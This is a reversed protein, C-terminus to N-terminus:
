PKVWRKATGEFWIRDISGWNTSVPQIVVGKKAPWGTMLDPRWATGYSAGGFNVYPLADFFVTQAKRALETRMARDQTAVVQAVLKDYEANSWKGYNVTEGTVFSSLFEIISSGTITNLTDIVIDFDGKDRRSFFLAQDLPSVKMEINLHKKWMDAAYLATNVRFQEDTRVICELSFGNPYGAEKLLRKAEAVRKDMPGETGMARAVEQKTFAEKVYFPVLGAGEVYNLELGGVGAIILEQYDLTMALAKRVRIDNWPGKRQFSFYAGRSSGSPELAIVAEPAYKKVKLVQTRDNDLYYRLTGCTDLNGGIFADVMADFSLLYVVYHDLYPLGELFYDPNKEYQYIKGPVHSKYKFPGTGVLFNTTRPNVEKLHEPYIAAYPPCLFMLLEPYAHKLSVRVTFDDVIEVREMPTVYSAFASRKPDRYKDLSHKVDRATFPKGDHFKVGQRLSFTYTKGDPSVRWSQALDPIVTEATVEEKLPDTRVLGNFVAAGHILVRGSTSTHSDYSPADSVVAVRLTGGRIPGSPAAAFASLVFSVVLVLSLLVTMVTRKMPQDEKKEIFLEKHITRFIRARASTM